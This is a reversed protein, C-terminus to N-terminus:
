PLFVTFRVIKTAAAAARAIEAAVEADACCGKRTRPVMAATSPGINVM